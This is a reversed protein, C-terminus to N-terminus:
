QWNPRWSGRSISRRIGVHKTFQSLSKTTNTETPEAAVSDQDAHSAYSTALTGVTITFAAWVLATEKGNDFTTTAVWYMDISAPTPPEMLDSKELVEWKKFNRAWLFIQLGNRTTNYELTCVHNKRRRHYKSHWKGRFTCRTDVESYSICTHLVLECTLFQLECLGFDFFRGRYKRASIWSMTSRRFKRKVTKVIALLLIIGEQSGVNLTVSPIM